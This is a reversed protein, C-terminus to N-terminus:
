HLVRSKERSKVVVRPRHMDVDPLSHAPVPEPQLMTQEAAAGKMHVQEVDASSEQPSLRSRMMVVALTMLAIRLDLWLSARRVYWEDLKQKEQKSVLKGGNVQAWGSIGPRVALRISTNGPQDEPLLPRPGILSMEGLLVNLLQPLEDLRTARLFRGIRSPRRNALIPKGDDDFPARLTRFKYMLFFHGKWGQREQWFLVPPGVDLLVLVGGIILLPLLLVLLVLSGVVDILRKFRFYPSTARAAAALAPAAALVQAHAGSASAAGNASAKWETLGIM